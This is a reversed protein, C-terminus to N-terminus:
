NKVWVQQNLQPVFSGCSYYQLLWTEKCLEAPATALSCRALNGHMGQPTTFVMLVAKAFQQGPRPATLLQIKLCMLHIHYKSFEGAKYCM